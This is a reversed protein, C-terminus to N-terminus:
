HIWPEDLPDRLVEKQRLHYSWAQRDVRALPEQYDSIDNHNLHFKHLHHVAERRETQPKCM